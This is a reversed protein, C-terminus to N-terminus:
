KLKVKISCYSSICRDINEGPLIVGPFEFIKHRIGEYGMLGLHTDFIGQVHRLNVCLKNPIEILPM